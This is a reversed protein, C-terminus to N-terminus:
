LDEEQALSFSVGHKAQNEENKDDDWDFHTKVVIM